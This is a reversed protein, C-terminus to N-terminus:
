EAWTSAANVHRPQEVLRHYQACAALKLLGFLKTALDDCGVRAIGHRQDIAPTRQVPQPLESRRELGIVLRQRQIGAARNKMKRTTSDQLPQLAVVLRQLGIVAKQANRGIMGFGPVSPAQRQLIQPPQLLRQVGVVAGFM